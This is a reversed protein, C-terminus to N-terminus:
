TSSTGRPVVGQKSSPLPTSAYGTPTSPDRARQPSYIDRVADSSKNHPLDRELMEGDKSNVFTKNAAM